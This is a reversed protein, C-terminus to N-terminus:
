IECKKPFNVKTNNCFVEHNKIEITEGPLGICRKIYKKEGNNNIKFTIVDMRSLKPPPSLM